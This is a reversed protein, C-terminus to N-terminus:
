PLNSLGVLIRQAQKETECVHIRLEDSPSPLMEMLFTRLAFVVNVHPAVVVIMGLNQPQNAYLQRLLTYMGAPLRPVNLKLLVHVTHSSQKLFVQAGVWMEAVEVANAADDITILLLTKEDSGWEIHGDM